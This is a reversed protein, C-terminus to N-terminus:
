ESFFLVDLLPLELHPRLIEACRELERRFTPSTDFLQRAMGVYQSGQGTFLFAVRPPRPHEVHGSWLGAVPAGKAFSSLLSGSEALSGSLLTLRYPHSALVGTNATYCVDALSLESHLQLYNALNGAQTALAAPSRASLTLLHYPREVNPAMPASAPAAELVVHVNTGSFGFSSVGAIRPSAAPWSMPITPITVPIDDWPILPSPQEFHVHPPVTNHQLALVVKIIGAVGAAAELHGINTKASGLLFRNDRDRGASLM